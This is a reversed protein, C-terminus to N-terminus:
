FVPFRRLEGFSASWGDWLEGFVRQGALRGKPYASFNLTGDSLQALSGDTIMAIDTTVLLTQPWPLPSGDAMYVCFVKRKGQWNGFAQESQLTLQKRHEEQGTTVLRIVTEPPLGQM